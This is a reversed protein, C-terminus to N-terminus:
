CVSECDSCTDDSNALIVSLIYRIGLDALDLIEIFFPRWATLEIKRLEFGPQTLLSVKIVNRAGYRFCGGKVRGFLM